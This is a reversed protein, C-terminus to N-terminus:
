VAAKPYFQPATPATAPLWSQREALIIDMTPLLLPDPLAYSDAMFRSLTAEDIGLRDGLAKNGRVIEAAARLLSVTTASM